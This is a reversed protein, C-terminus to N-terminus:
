QTAKLVHLLVYFRLLIVIRLQLVTTEPNKTIVLSGLGSATLQSNRIAFQQQRIKSKLSRGM